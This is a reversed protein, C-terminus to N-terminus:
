LIFNATLYGVGFPGEYALSEYKYNVDRLIGMLILFSRFGCEAAADVLSPDLRLMGATNHSALLEQIKNDFEVGAQNFGAPADSTLAHSLDGSAIVAVRKTTEFIHDKIIYGFEVHTKADLGSFGMPIIAANPLHRMLYFLPVAAGHDLSPESTIVTDIGARKAASRLKTPFHPEGTFTLKTSLDGFEKLDTQYKVCLNLSFADALISGHPSIILIRDPKSLYLEEELREM